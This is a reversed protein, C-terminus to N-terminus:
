RSRAGATWISRPNILSCPSTRAGHRRSRPPRGAAGDQEAVAVRYAERVLAQVAGWRVRYNVLEETTMQVRDDPGVLHRLWGNLSQEAPRPDPLPDWLLQYLLM